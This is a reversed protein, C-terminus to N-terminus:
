SVFNGHFGLPLHYPLWARAIPGDTVREANFVNLCTRKTPIHLATGLLFGEEKDGSAIPIHEEVIFEEGYDYKDAQGSLMNRAIIQHAWVNNPLGSVHFLWQNKVGTIQSFVRPFESIESFTHSSTDGTKSLTFVTTKGNGPHDIREGKMLASKEHLVDVSDYLSADFHINGTSDEWANGFHFAFGTDLEYERVQKLSQKDIVLVRMAQKPEYRISSFLGTVTPDKSLSPLIILVHKHTILFDHLMGGRYNANIVAVNKLSGKSSLHYLIIQGKPSLGFNWIDGHPEIKPHASFPLGRLQNGYASGEGLDVQRKFSLDNANIATATGAEWLAWLEDNVPIINTNAVNIINPNSVPQSQAFRTNPGSYLFQGAGEEEQFKPTPVFKGTHTVNGNKMVFRQVMGDGEFWHSYRQEQREHKAPGNRFFIGNLKEPWKGEVDMQRPKFDAETNALGILEPNLPLARNFLHKISVPQKQAFANLPAATVAALALANQIFQRRQM